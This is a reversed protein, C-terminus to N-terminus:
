RSRRRREITEYAANIAALRSTAIAVFEAPVGRAILKDPHNDTALKRYATRIEEFPMGRRVGLIAYPDAAGTHVHRLLIQEFHDEEVGFEEAVRRLFGIEREHVAGDARAIHFLGDLVDELMACNKQGSGCLGALQQAYTEFGASDAKAIDYLRAVNRAQERPFEFIQHFAQIESNTVVGDSKAMKASLAIMAVSFAVRRRLDPDGAYVTRVTEVLDGIGTRATATVRSVFDELRIWMSMAREYAKGGDNVLVPGDVPQSKPIRRCFFTM